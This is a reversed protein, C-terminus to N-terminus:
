SLTPHVDTLPLHRWDYRIDGYDSLLTRLIPEARGCYPCEFGAYEVITVPSEEPGRIHDRRPDPPVALDIILQSTGQLASNAPGHTIFVHTAARPIHRPPALVSAM